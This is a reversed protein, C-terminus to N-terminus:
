FLYSCYESFAQIRKLLEELDDNNQILEEAGLTKSDANVFGIIDATTEFTSLNLRRIPFSLIFQVDRTSNLQTQNLNFTSLDEVTLDVAVPQKAHYAQGCVGQNVTLRM